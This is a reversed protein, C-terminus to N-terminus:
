DEYNIQMAFIENMSTADSNNIDRPKGILILFWRHVSRVDLDNRLVTLNSSLM